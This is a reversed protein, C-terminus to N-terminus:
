SGGARLSPPDRTRKEYGPTPRLTEAKHTAELAPGVFVGRTAVVSTTDGGGQSTGAPGVLLGATQCM